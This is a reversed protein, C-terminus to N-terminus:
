RRALLRWFLVLAALFGIVLLYEAAKTVFPDAPMPFEM